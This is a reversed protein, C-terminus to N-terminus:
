SMDYDKLYEPSRVVRGSRTRVPGPQDLIKIPQKGSVPTSQVKKSTTKTKSSADPQDSREVVQKTARLHNRNRRLTVNTDTTVGYSRRGVQKSVTAREWVRHGTFPQVRVVQNPRLEPLDKKGRNYYRSQKEKAKRISNSDDTVQPQM